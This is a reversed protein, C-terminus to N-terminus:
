LTFSPNNSGCQQRVDKIYASLTALSLMHIRGRSQESCRPASEEESYNVDAQKAAGRWEAIKKWIM